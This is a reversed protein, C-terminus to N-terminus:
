FLIQALPSREVAVALEGSQSLLFLRYVYYGLLTLLLLVQISRKGLLDTYVTHLHHGTWLEVAIHGIAVTIGLFLAPAFAHDAMAQALDGQVLSVFARTMGCTPCPIGTLNRWLCSFPSTLGSHSYHWAGLVPAILGGLQVARLRRASRSLLNPSLSFM